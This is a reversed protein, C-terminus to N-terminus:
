KIWTMWTTNFGHNFLAWKESFEEYPNKPYADKPKGADIWAQGLRKGEEFPNDKKKM